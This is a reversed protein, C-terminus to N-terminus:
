REARRANGGMTMCRMPAAIVDPSIICAPWSRKTTSPESGITWSTRPSDGRSRASSTNLRRRMQSVSSFQPTSM